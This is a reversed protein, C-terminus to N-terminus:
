DRPTIDYIRYVSNRYVIPADFPGFRRSLIHTVGTEKHFSLADEASYGDDSWNESGWHKLFRLRRNWELIGTADQPCDKMAVFEPRQAFWKFGWSTKPTAFLVDERTNNRIWECAERWAVEHRESLRVVSGRGANLTVAALFIVLLGIARSRTPLDPIVRGSKGLLTRVSLGCLLAVIGVSVPWLWRPLGFEASLSQREIFGVFGALLISVVFMFRKLMVDSCLPMRRLDFCRSLHVAVFMPLLVDFLRFPYFKLLKMRFEYFPMEAPPRPGWGIAVGCLAIIGACFVVRAFFRRNANSSSCCQIVTAVLALSGYGVYRRLPFDMPDLHHKIRYFVQIYDAAFRNRSNAEGISQLAPIIGVCALVGFLLIGIVVARDRLFQRISQQGILQLLSERQFMGALCAAMGIAVVTWAGVLPHFAVSLGLCAGVRIWRRDLLDTLGVFAFAYAPVKGELGGVIWEGSFNGISALLLFICGSALGSWRDETLRFCLRQWGVALLLYAIIRGVFAAQTLPLLVTLAGFTRYFVLHPNSSELFFDGAVWAPNWIHRAKALYHPENVGPIPAHIFSFVLFLMWVGAMPAVHRLGSESAPLRPGVTTSEATTEVDSM